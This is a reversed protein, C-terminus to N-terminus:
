YSSGHYKPENLQLFEKNHRRAVCTNIFPCVEYKPRLWKSDNSELFCDPNDHICVSRAINWEIQNVISINLNTYNSIDSLLKACLERVAAITCEKREINSNRLYDVAYQTKAYLLGRRLYCRILHYDIAPQYYESLGALLPYTSLKQILLNMKKEEPDNSFVSCALLNNRISNNDLIRENRLFVDEICQYNKMWNGIEHLIATREKKRIREPRPYMAFMELVEDESISTLNDASVWANNATVKNFVTTRLYDWNMQHCIAACIIECSIAVDFPLDSFVICDKPLINALVPYVLDFDCELFPLEVISFSDRVKDSILTESITPNRKASEKSQVNEERGFFSLQEFKLM